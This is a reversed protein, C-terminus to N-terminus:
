YRYKWVLDVITTGANGVTGDLSWKRLFRWDITLLTTDPSTGPPPPGIYLIRALQLSIDKAIQVAIEPKPNAASTDVKASVASLGFQDLARNLPQAALNGAVGEASSAGPVGQASAAQTEDISGFLLLQVIDNQSLPPQSHLTVKGTKLPGIFDAKVDTGDSATWGATVSVQPNSPDDGVFSVTGHEIEFTKGYLNLTGGKLQIQGSVRAKDTVTVTPGGTLQVKVDTGRRLVVDSGLETVVHVAVANEPRPPPAAATEVDAHTVFPGSATPRFGVTVGAMPGLAQVDKAGTDQAQMHLTPVSVKVELSRHDAAIAESVDLRGDVSGLLAGGVSLPLARGKPIQVTANAAELRLGDLRAKASAMVVGSVGFATLDEVTLVGDPTINLKGSIDHFEGGVDGVELIGDRVAANGQIHVAATRPDVTASARAELLGDIQDVVGRLFPQFVSARFRKAELSVALSQTANPVPRLSAGWTAPVKATVAAYADTGEELCADASAAKGDLDVTATAKTYAVDGVKLDEVSLAAHAHADSHLGDLTVDGSLKGRVQRDDLAGVSVLPFRNVHLKGSATWALDSRQALLDAASVSARAVASLVEDAAVRAHVEADGRAGDYAAHLDLDLPSTLHAAPSNAASLKGTVVVNPKLLPGDIALDAELDGELPPPGLAAPWKDLSRRPLAFHAHFATSPLLAVARGPAEYLVKYPIADSAADAVVLPGAADRVTAGVEVHGTDGNMRVSGEFDLGDLAWAVAATAGPRPAVRPGRLALGSTKASLQILPTFDGADDREFRGDLDLTGHAETVPLTGAPLYGVIQALDGHGTLHVDGYVRRLPSMGPSGAGLVLEKVSLEVVGVTLASADLKGMFKNGTLQGDLHATIGEVGAAAGHEVSLRVHGSGERGALRGEADLALTGHHLTGELMLLRALRGLDVEPAHIALRGSSGAISFAATAPQGLGDIEVADATITQHDFHIRAARLRATEGLRRVRVDVGRVTPGALLDLDAVADVDPLDQSEEHVTAHPSLAPGRATVDLQDIDHGAISVGRAHVTVDVEPNRVHGRLRGEVTFGEVRLSGRHIASGRTEISADAVLRELDINGKGLVRLSGTADAGLRRIAGIRIDRSAITFDITSADGRPLAHVTLTTPAGPEDIVLTADGGFAGTAVRFGSTELTAHPLPYAGIHGPPLDLQAGGELRGAADQSLRIDGTVGISSGPVGPILESLDVGEAAIHLAAKRDHESGVEGRVDVTATDLTARASLAIAALPGHADLHVTGTSRIPSAAWVSRIEDPSAQQVDVTADFRGHELGVSLTEHVQGVAGDWDVAGGITSTGDLALEFRGALAGDVDAGLAIGRAVVHAKHAEAVLGTSTLSFGADLQSVDGDLYPAGPIAGHVWAHVIHADRITLRVGRGPKDSPPAPHAAPKPTFANAIAVGHDDMDLRVDVDEIRVGSLSITIPESSGVLTRLLTLLRIRSALGNVRLVSHGQPDLVRVDVGSVGFPDVHGLAVLTMTGQFIPAFVLQNVRAVTVRRVVPTDLHVLVSAVLMLVVLVATGVGALVRRAAGRLRAAASM